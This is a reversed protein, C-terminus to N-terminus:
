KTTENLHDLLAVAFTMARLQYRTLDGAEGSSAAGESRSPMGFGWILVPGVQVLTVPGFDGNLSTSPLGVVTSLRSGDTSSARDELTAVATAVDPYVVYAGILFYEGSGVVQFAGEAGEIDTDDEWPGIQLPGVEAPFLPSAVTSGRLMAIIDVPKTAALREELVALDSSRDGPTAAPTQAFSGGSRGFTLLSVGGAITMTRRSVRAAM